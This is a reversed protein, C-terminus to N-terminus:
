LRSYRRKAAFPFQVIAVHFPRTEYKIQFSAGGGPVRCACNLGLFGRGSGAEPKDRGNTLLAPDSSSINLRDPVGQACLDVKDM